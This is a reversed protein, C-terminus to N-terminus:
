EWHTCHEQAQAETAPSAGASSAGCQGSTCRRGCEASAHTSAGCQGDIGSHHRGCSRVIGGFKGEKRSGQSAPAQVTRTPRTWAGCTLEHRCSDGGAFTASRVGTVAKMIMGLEVAMSKRLVKDQRKADLELRRTSDETQAIPAARLLSRPRGHHSRTPHPRCRSTVPKCWGTDASVVTNYSSWLNDEEDDVNVKPTAVLDAMDTHQHMLRRVPVPEVTLKPPATGIEFEIASCRSAAESANSNGRQFGISRAADSASSAGRGFRGDNPALLSEGHDGPAFELTTAAAPAGAGAGGAGTVVADGTIAARNTRSAVM